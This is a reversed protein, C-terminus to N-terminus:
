EWGADQMLKDMDANRTPLHVEVLPCNAPKSDDIDGEPYVFWEFFEDDFWKRLPTACVM